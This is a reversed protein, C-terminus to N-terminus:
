QELLGSHKQAPTLQDRHSLWQRGASGADGPAAPAWAPEAPVHQRGPAAGSSPPIRQELVQM